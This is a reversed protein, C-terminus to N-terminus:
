AVMVSKKSTIHFNRKFQPSLLTILKLGKSTLYSTNTFTPRGRNLDYVWQFSGILRHGDKQERSRAAMNYIWSKYLTSLIEIIHNLERTNFYLLFTNGVHVLSYELRGMSFNARSEVHVYCSFSHNMLWLINFM